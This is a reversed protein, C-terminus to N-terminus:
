EVTPPFDYHYYVVKIYLIETYRTTLSNIDADKFISETVTM